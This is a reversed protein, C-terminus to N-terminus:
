IFGGANLNWKMGVPGSLDDTKVGSADYNLTVPLNFERGPLTMLDISIEPLGTYYNIKTNGFNGFATSTPSTPAYNSYYDSQITKGQASTEAIHMLSISFLLLMGHFVEYFFRCSM